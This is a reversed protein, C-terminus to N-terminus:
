RVCRLAFGLAKNHSFKLNVHAGGFDLNHAGTSSVETSSWYFSNWGAPTIELGTFRAGGWIGGIEPNSPSGTASTYWQLQEDITFGNVIGGNVDSMARNQGNGGLNLDLNIFDQHTPVRWDGPCLVDAFRMVACWSFFHGTLETEARRCDANFNGATGGSFTTRDQCASAFVAGSWVQTPRDGTGPVTTTGSEVNTSGITGWSITGLSTGWGPTNNNCGTIPMNVTITFDQTYDTTATAGNVITARVIVSGTSTTILTDGSLSAGTAGANQVSWVITQNTANSPVVTGTLTLASGVTATTPVGTIDTVPVFAPTATITFDQTYDMTETAGNTITARVIVSGASTTNLTDGSLSAGTTGAEYVSWVIIQNTANSPVVTGTLELPTGAIATTPVGTIDTVPIFNSSVANVMITSTATHGGDQTRVTIVSSGPSVATIIGASSVTAVTDNSSSWTVHPNAVDAPIMVALLLLTDGVNLNASAQELTVELVNSEGDRFDCSVFALVLLPLILLKIIKKM